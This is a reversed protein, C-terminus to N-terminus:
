RSTALLTYVAVDVIVVENVVENVVVIVNEIV